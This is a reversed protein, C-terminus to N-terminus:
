GLEMHRQNRRWSSASSTKYFDLHLDRIFTFTASVGSPQKYFRPCLKPCTIYILTLYNSLITLSDGHFYSRSFLHLNNYVYTFVHTIYMHLYMHLICIYICTYYVYTFVHTIYMHLYMHPDINASVRKYLEHAYRTNGLLLIFIKSVDM